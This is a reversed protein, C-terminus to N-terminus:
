KEEATRAAWIIVINSDYPHYVYTQAPEGGIRVYHIQIPENEEIATQSGPYGEQREFFRVLWFTVLVAVFLGAAASAWRWASRSFRFGANSASDPISKRIIESRVAPWLGDLPGVEEPRILIRRAEERSALRSSCAECKEIHRRLLADKWSSFPAAAYLIDIIKSHNM